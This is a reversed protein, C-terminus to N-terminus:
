SADEERILRMCGYDDIRITFDSDVYTTATPEAVIAPGPTASGIPLNERDLLAFDLMTEEAFSWAPHRPPKGPKRNATVVREERRPLSQRLAARLTVVQVGADLRVNYTREYAEVFADRLAEVGLTVKGDASEPYITLTYEQGTYRLDLGIEKKLDRGIMKGAREELDAFLETLQANIAQLSGADLGRIMTLSANQVIDAGLLGWASFNGAYPPVVIEGIDLERAMRIALLPGAGGFALLRLRRPDVGQDISIERIANAMKVAAITVIGRATELADYGLKDALPQLAREALARNLVLGSALRGEGLMGLHLLADTVTAETGGRGYSAPGPLAGASHPGVQLLGGVDVCAISGGGAGISRVDMWPSQVPMGDVEGHYLLKPAGDVILCTDFSTGGVDATILDGLGAVRSLEAGGQAGGVPGSMITEFSRETADAFPISGGGSRTILCTGNFGSAVLSSEVHNLYREMLGRVFADVVTTSTREYDRYEGSLRHSLSIAGEYGAERLIRETELEHRPNAYAHLYCVAISTVGAAIFAALNRRVDAAELARLVSGDARIREGVPLRLDRPVLPEPPTWLIDYGHRSGRGISLVDRFGETCMLGVKAGRRQLLANLGVTTGHLFFESRGLLEAPVANRVAQVCGEEPHEPTTLVKEVVVKGVDEDFFVLDTFTGGIDVGIRSSM